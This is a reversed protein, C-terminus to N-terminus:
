ATAHDQDISEREQAAPRLLPNLRDRRIRAAIEDGQALLALVQQRIAELALLDATAEDTDDVASYRDLYGTIASARQRRDLESCRISDLHARWHKNGKASNCAKCCPLLNGLRHGHGSFRSNRVTAFVHDWTEASAHCYACLLPKDPDQGLDLVAQRVRGEDYSDNPAIAAAFAHNITTRRRSLMIYPALHTAISTYRM